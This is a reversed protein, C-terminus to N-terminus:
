IGICIETCLIYTHGHTHLYKKYAEILYCQLLATSHSNVRGKRKLNCEYMVSEEDKRM